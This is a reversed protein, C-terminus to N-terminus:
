GHDGPLLYSKGLASSRESSTEKGYIIAVIRDGEQPQHTSTKGSQYM